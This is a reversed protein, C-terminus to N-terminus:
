CGRGPPAGRRGPWGEGIIRMLRAPGVFKFLILLANGNLEEDLSALIAAIM